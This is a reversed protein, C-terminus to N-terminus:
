RTLDSCNDLEIRGNMNKQLQKSGSMLQNSNIIIQVMVHSIHM